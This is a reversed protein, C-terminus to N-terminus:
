FTPKVIEGETEKVKRHAEPGSVGAERLRLYAMAHGKNDGFIPRYAEGKVEWGLPKYVLYLHVKQPTRATHFDKM